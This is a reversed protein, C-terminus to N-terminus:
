RVLTILWTGNRKELDLTIPSEPSKQPSGNTPTFEQSSQGMVTANTGNTEVRRDTFKMSISRASRFYNEIATRTRAPPNPWIRWLAQADKRQYSDVYADIVSNIANRDAQLGANAADPTVTSLNNTPVRWAALQSLIEGSKAEIGSTPASQTHMGLFAGQADFVPGGSDGEALANDRSTSFNHIKGDPALNLVKGTAVSWDGSSPHGIVHISDMLAADKRVIEPLVKPLVAFPVEVVALDLVPEYKEFVTAKIKQPSSHFQLEVSQAVVGENIVAHCATIFYASQADKGVFLGAATELTSQSNFRVRLKVVVDMQADIKTSQASVESTMLCVSLALLIGLRAIM